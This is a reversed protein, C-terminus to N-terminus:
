VVEDDEDVNKKIKDYLIGSLGYSIFLFLIKEWLDWELLYPNKTLFFIILYMPVFGLITSILIALLELFKM